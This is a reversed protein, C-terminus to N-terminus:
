SAWSNSAPNYIAGLTTWVANCGSVNNYEGGEVIVRGDTLVASAIFRPAYGSPLSAITSWTGNAYSGNIDPTLKYWTSSCSHQLIVTGDPLLLPNGLTTGAQTTLSVWPSIPPQPTESAQAPPVMPLNAMFNQMAQPNARLKMWGAQSLPPMAKYQSDAYATFAACILAIVALGLLRLARQITM